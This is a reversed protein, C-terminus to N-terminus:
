RPHNYNRQLSPKAGACGGALIKRVQGMPQTFDAVPKLHNIIGSHITCRM